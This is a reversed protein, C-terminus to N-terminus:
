LGKSYFYIKYNYSYKFHSFSSVDNINLVEIDDPEITAENTENVIYHGVYLKETNSFYLQAWKDPITLIDNRGFVKKCSVLEVVNGLEDIADIEYGVVLKIVDNKHETEFLDYSTIRRHQLINNNINNNEYVTMQDEFDKGFTPDTQDTPATQVNKKNKKLVIVRGIRSFLVNINTKTEQNPKNPLKTAEFLERLASRGAYIFPRGGNFSKRDDTNLFTDFYFELNRM